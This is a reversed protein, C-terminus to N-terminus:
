CAHDPPLDPPVDKGENTPPIFPPIKGAANLAQEQTAELQVRFVALDQKTAPIAVVDSLYRPSQKLGAVVHASSTYCAARHQSQHDGEYIIAIEGKRAATIAEDKTSVISLNYSPM